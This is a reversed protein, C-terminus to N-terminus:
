RVTATREVRNHFRSYLGTQCGTSCVATREVRNFYAIHVISRPYHWPLHLGVVYIHQHL